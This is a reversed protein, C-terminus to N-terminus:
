LARPPPHIYDPSWSPICHSDPREDHPGPDDQSHPQTHKIASSLHSRSAVSTPWKFDVEWCPTHVPCLDSRHIPHHHTHHAVPKPDTNSRSPPPSAVLAVHPPTPRVIGSVIFIIGACASVLNLEPQRAKVQRLGKHIMLDVVGVLMALALLSAIITVIYDAVGGEDALGM